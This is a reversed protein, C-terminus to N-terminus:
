TYLDMNLFPLAIKADQSVETLAILLWMVATKKDEINSNFNLIKKYEKLIINRLKNIETIGNVIHTKISFSLGGDFYRKRENMPLNIRYNVMDESKFYLDKLGGVNLNMFWKHNTYNGLLDIERFVEVAEFEIQMEPNVDNKEFDEFKGNEILYEIRKKVRDIVDEEFRNTTYPNDFENDVFLNNLTRLDFSYTKGCDILKYYYTLPIEYVNILQICEIDNVTGRRKWIFYGRLFAQLKIIKELNKLYYNEWELYNILASFIKTKSQNKKILNLLGYHRLTNRLKGVKLSTISVNSMWEFGERLHFLFPSIFSNGGYIELLESKKYYNLTEDVTKMKECKIGLKDVDVFYTITKSRNHIGCLFTGDKRKRTCQELSGKKKISFCNNENYSM